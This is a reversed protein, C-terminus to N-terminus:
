LNLSELDVNKTKDELTTYLDQGQIVGWINAKIILHSLSMKGIKETINARHNNVTKESINMQKAIESHEMGKSLYVVIDLERQTLKSFPNIKEHPRVQITNVTTNGSYYSGGDVITKLADTFSSVCESKHIYGQIGNQICLEKIKTEQISSILVTRVDKYMSKTKLIVELGTYSSNLIQDAIVIDPQENQMSEFLGEVAIFTLIKANLNLKEVSVKIGSLFIEHDDIIYIIFQRM